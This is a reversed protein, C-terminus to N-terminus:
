PGHRHLPNWCVLPRALLTARHEGAPLVVMGDVKFEVYVPSTVQANDGILNPFDVGAWAPAVLLGVM